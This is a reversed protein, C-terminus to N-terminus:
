FVVAPKKRPEKPKFIGTNAFYEVTFKSAIM